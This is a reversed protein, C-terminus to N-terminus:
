NVGNDNLFKSYKKDVGNIHTVLWDKLFFLIEVSIMKKGNKFENQFDSVKDIFIKHAEKHTPFDSYNYRQMLEEEAKFHTKTYDILEDLTKGLIANAKAGLMASHLENLISVLKQHQEDIKKINVTYEDKWIFLAM